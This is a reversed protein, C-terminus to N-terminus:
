YKDDVNQAYSVSDVRFSRWGGSTVDWCAITDSNRAHFDRDQLEGGKTTYSEPLMDPRLTCRMVRGQGNVKTFHVEVVFERLDKLLTDREYKV